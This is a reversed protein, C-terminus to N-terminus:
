LKKREEREKEEKLARSMIKTAKSFAWISSIIVSIIIGTILLWPDTGWKKDLFRGILAFIVLPIVIVYALQGAYSLAMWWAKRKQEAM